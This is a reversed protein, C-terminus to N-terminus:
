PVVKYYRHFEESAPRGGAPSATARSSLRAREAAWGLARPPAPSATPTPRGGAGEKGAADTAVGRLHTLGKCGHSTDTGAKCGMGAADNGAIGDSVAGGTNARSCVHGHHSGNSGQNTVMAIHRRTWDRGQWLVRELVERVRECKERYAVLHFFRGSSALSRGPVCVGDARRLDRGTEKKFQFYLKTVVLRM